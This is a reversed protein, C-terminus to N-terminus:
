ILTVFLGPDITSDVACSRDGVDDGANTETLSVSLRVIPLCYGTVIVACADTGVVDCVGCVGCVDVVGIV